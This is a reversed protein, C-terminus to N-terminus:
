KRGIGLLFLGIITAGLITILVGMAWVELM